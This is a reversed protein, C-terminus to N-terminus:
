ACDHILVKKCNMKRIRNLAKYTSEQRTKGGIVKIVHELNLKDLNKKHKSNYVVVTKKIEHFSKFANLSHELLTKDNINYFPKPTGSKLRKSDGAALLILFLSMKLNTNYKNLM